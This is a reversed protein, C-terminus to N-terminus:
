SLHQLFVRPSHYYVKKVVLYETMEKRAEAQSDKGIVSLACATWLNSVSRFRHTTIHKHM